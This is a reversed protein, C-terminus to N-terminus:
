IQKQLYLFVILVLIIEWSNTTKKGLYIMWSIISTIQKVIYRPRYLCYLDWDYGSSVEEHLHDEWSWARCKQMGGLSAPLAHLQFIHVKEMDCVLLGADSGSSVRCSLGRCVGDGVGAGENRQIRLPLVRKPCHGALSVAWPTCTNCCPFNWSSILFFIKVVFTTWCRFLLARNGVSASFNRDKPINWSWGSVVKLLGVSSWLQDLSSTPAAKLLPGSWIVELPGKWRWKNQM